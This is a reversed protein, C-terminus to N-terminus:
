MYKRLKVILAGSILKIGLFKIFTKQLETQKITYM